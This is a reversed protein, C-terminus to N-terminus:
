GTIHGTNVGVEGQSLSKQQEGDDDDDEDCDVNEQDIFVNFCTEPQPTLLLFHRWGNAIM